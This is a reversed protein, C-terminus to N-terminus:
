HDNLSLELHKRAQNVRMLQKGLVRGQRSDLKAHQDFFWQHEALKGKMRLFQDQM